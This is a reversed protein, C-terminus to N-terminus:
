TPGDVENSFVKRGTATCVGEMRRNTHGINSWILDKQSEQPTAEAPPKLRLGALVEPPAWVDEKVMGDNREMDCGMGPGTEAENHRGNAKTLTTGGM